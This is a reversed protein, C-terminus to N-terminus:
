RAFGAVVSKIKDFIVYVQVFIKESISDSFIIKFTRFKEKKNEAHWLKSKTEMEALSHNLEINLVFAYKFEKEYMKMFFTDTGYFRLREDYKIVKFVSGKISMGSNIALLNRSQIKGADVSSLLFGKSFFRKGPSVLRDQCIIKPLILPHLEKQTVTLMEFFQHPVETDQDFLTLYDEDMLTSGVTNYISSLSTNEPTHRYHTSLNMILKSIDFEPAKVPSNDWIILEYESLDKLQLHRLSEIVSKVTISELPLVEYLVVLIYKKM